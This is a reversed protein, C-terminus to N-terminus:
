PYWRPPSHGSARRERDARLPHVTLASSAGSFVTRGPVCALSAPLALPSYYRLRHPSTSGRPVYPGPELTRPCYQLRPQTTTDPVAQRFGVWLYVSGRVQPPGLNRRVDNPRPSLIQVESGWLGM